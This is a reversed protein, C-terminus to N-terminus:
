QRPQLLFLFTSGQRAAPLRIISTGLVNMILIEFLLCWPYVWKIHDLVAQHKEQSTRGHLSCVTQLQDEEKWQQPYVRQGMRWQSSCNGQFIINNSMTAQQQIAGNYIEIHRNHTVQYSQPKSNCDQKYNCSANLKSPMSGALVSQFHSNLKQGNFCINCRVMQLGWGQTWFM